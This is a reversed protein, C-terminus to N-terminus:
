SVAHGADPELHEALVQEPAFLLSAVTGKGPASEILLKGGHLAIVSKVIALGLGAGAPSGTRSPDVRYFRDGLKPLHEPAIGIGSDSVSLVAAGDAATRARLRIRGGRATYKLANSMLNSLARRLLLPDGMIGAQGECILEVGEEDALAQYFDAVAQLESRADLAVPKVVSQAQDAQALFLMSDIMRSLRNYEELASQLVRVYEPGTRARALTVQAEGVLNNIPTRLEHALDASFQSLREFAEQLRDLMGDFASALSALEQPWAGTQIREQLQQAGIRETAATIEKLPRLGRRAIWAGIAAAALLGGSLVIGIDHRYGKLLAQQSGVNLAAQLRWGARSVPLGPVRVAALLFNRQAGFVWMGRAPMSAEGQPFISVPLLARMGPTEDVIRDHTDLLRLFFPSPSSASIEAEELVEQEIAARDWPERQLLATLVQMKYRLFSEDELRMNRQLGWYLVTSAVMLLVLVSLTYFLTLWTTM